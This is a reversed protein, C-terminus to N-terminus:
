TTHSAHGQGGAQGERDTGRGRIARVQGEHFHVGNTAIVVHSVDRERNRGGLRRTSVIRAQFPAKSNFSPCLPLPPPALSLPLPFPLSPSPLHPALPSSSTTGM